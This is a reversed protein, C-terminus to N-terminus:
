SFAPTVFRFVVQTMLKEELNDEKELNSGM